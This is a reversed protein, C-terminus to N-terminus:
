DSVPFRSSKSESLVEFGNERLLAAFIGEGPILTHSFTGDYIGNPGCSPSKAKLIATKAGSEMAIALAKEAGLRFAADVSHGDETCVSGNVIEAPKRPTPLGGLQEPCVPVPEWRTGDPAPRDLLEKLAPCDNNGGNYKCNIGLLCASVIIRM